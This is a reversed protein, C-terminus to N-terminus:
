AHVLERNEVRVAGPLPDVRVLGSVVLFRGYNPNSSEVVQDFVEERPFQTFYELAAQKVQESKTCAIYDVGMSARIGWLAVEHDQTNMDAVALETGIATANHDYHRDLANRGLTVVHRINHDKILRSLQNRMSFISEFNMLSDDSLGRLFNVGQEPDDIGHLKAANLAEHQRLSGLLEPPVTDDEVVIGNKDDWHRIVGNEGYSAFVLELGDPNEDSIQRLVAAAMADDDPHAFVGLTKGSEFPSNKEINM